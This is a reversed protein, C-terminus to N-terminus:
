NLTIQSLINQGTFLSDKEHSCHALCRSKYMETRRKSTMSSKSIEECKGQCAKLNRRAAKRGHRAAKTQARSLRRGQRIEKMKQSRAVVVVIVIIIALVIVGKVIAGILESKPDPPLM